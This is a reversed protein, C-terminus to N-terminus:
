NWKSPLARHVRKDVDIEWNGDDIREDDNEDIREDDIRGIM